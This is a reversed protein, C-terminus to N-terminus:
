FIHGINLYAGARHTFNNWHLDLSVPGIPSDYAVQIALGLMDHFDKNDTYFHNLHDASATYNAILSLYYKEAVRYRFDVRAIGALNGVYMPNNLGLFAMQHDLYRRSMDGGILNDFWGSNKGILLRGALQPIITFRSWPTWYAQFKFDIDVFSSDSNRFMSQNDNHWAVDFANLTGKTAFYTNDLNDYRGRLFIGFFGKSRDFRFLGEYLMTNLSFADRSSYFEESIGCAFSFERLHFESLYLSFLHHDVLWGVTSTSISDFSSVRLNSNGYDYTFNVDGVGLGCWSFKAGARFNYNLDLDVGVKFGSLRQENWGFHFLLSASEESDYRFGLAFLHPEAPALNIVLNYSERGLAETYVHNSLWYEEDTAFINYTISSYFGTGNLIGVASDIKDITMPIGIEFGDKKNLWRQEEGTVGNYVVSALVFTDAPTLNRARPVSREPVPAYSELRQKLQLFEDRHAKACEYGRRVMTDIADSSFSLMNYGTIDPHMYIECMERQTHRNGKVAISLYQSLQQPLSRLEDSSCVLEDALEVGIVIDAGMHLCVDVPFNDVLGGDALLHGNWEVPSFVGPIAMSSRIAKAFNGSRLVVSDGTLIDTAVCAFPVPLTAFDISDNYGISLRSFLNILSVGNIVGSPLSSLLSGSKEQFEGTGFPVTFLFNSARERQAASQFARDVKNSMYKSWDMDAILEAMEDPKYGLAYLGGIISGMSTGSIYDVPIGIEEMYKLVGIHAAGKAGGGSLAVGVKPRQHSPVGQQAWLLSCSLLFAVVFAIKKM